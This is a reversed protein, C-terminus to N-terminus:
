DRLCRVSFGYSKYDYYRRAAVDNYILNHDYAKSPDSEYQSSSWFSAGYGAEDNSSEYCSGAPVAGFGTSNNASQNNGVACETADSYWGTTSALAKAVNNNNSGCVYLSQSRVYNILQNWESTSPVHWGDPCIGQVGSPNATSSTAGNMVAAWNYYYGRQEFPITSTTYNYRYGTTTSITTGELVDSGDPYHECRLNERMWCQNGIKLTKYVNGDIDTVTPAEPCSLLDGGAAFLNVLAQLSDVQQQMNDQLNDMQQQMNDQLNDMQQQMDGQLDRMLDGLPSEELDRVCRVSFGNEMSSQNQWLDPYNYDIKRTRIQTDTAKTTSWFYTLNGFTYFGYQSYYGMPTASFGTANNQALAYGPACPNDSNKWYINAALARAIYTNNYNADQDCVYQSQSGVYDSFLTWEGDSPVHWGDPCIGQIGSPVADSPSAGRMVAAWNYLHGRHELPISSSTFNYRYGTTTSTTTGAPIEVGNSYHESRLNEKTWCQNGVKVTNYENGDYDKVTSIGCVFSMNDLQSQMDDQMDHMMGGLPGETVDRLCRVSYAEYKNWPSREVDGYDYSIKRSWVGESGAPMTTTWFAAMHGSSINNGGGYYEGAPFISFGTTNNVTQNNGVACEHISSNWGTNSVLAKAIATQDNNCRYESKSSVYDTLLTWEADSPVHWGTPCVGQVGSPVAESMAGGHMVATWNYLYGRQELPLGLSPFDYRYPDTYSISGAAPTGVPIATGDAYHESRLNEKTWCQNGIKLTNYENGDYDKVTSVGCVFSMNDLEEQMAANQEQLATNQNQLEDMQQQMPALSNTILDQVDALTLTTIEVTQNESENATFTGVDEGNHRITLTADNVEPMEPTDSLDNYSGSTAVPALDPTGSLDSYNGSTAVPALEPTDTLDNYNGSTAVTALEPKHLIQAAGETANWDANVQAPIDTATIYGSNNTLQSTQTPITPKGTLDDYSGSTAVPALEPTNTLDNYNGSTAVAALTPKNQIYQPSSPSTETWNAPLQTFAGTNTPITYEHTGTGDTVTIIVNDGSAAATVTPSVGDQGNTGNTGNTVTFTTPAVSADTYTITYTDVNDTTGTKAISAIGNGTEGQQGTPGIPGQAGNTVTFTATNGDTYTITYTDVLDATGTKAISTIGVGDTGNTGNTGDVGNVGNTVTFTTPEGDTYTITYTDVNDTTGTKTISVIGRGDAGNAGNSGDAGKLSNLFAVVDGTNGAEIWLEYASKGDVGDTGNTGNTGDIGNTGNTVTFTTPEGTTYTITYTDVNDTTGTKTISVIGRGDQGDQGNTGAAGDAGNTVTFTSTNGNSLVITYTDILGNSIPGVIYTISVGQPGQEGQPGQQGAPGQSGPAGQPGQDGQPGQAGQPGQDGQPGQPGTAGQEGNHIVFTHLGTADTITVVTSDGASVTSVTPSFGDTGAPGQDGQLGQAGQPGQDGQLGQVGQPGQDGQPGQPGAPGEPGQAGDQGDVGNRLVYTQPTGNAPTLVLVYGTDTPIVAIDPVNGAEDAYLAYPVSLLQQTSTVSYNTSGNPDIETKLFYPGDGWNVSAMSGQQANGSGIELTLLGNANTTVTHTEVYVAAGNAGGQLVSVRVGVNANTVLQNSANRVVAQYSFKGPAQAFLTAACLVMMMIILYLKKM